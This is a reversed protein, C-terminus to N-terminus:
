TTFLGGKLAPVAGTKTEEEDLGYRSLALSSPLQIQEPDDWSCMM